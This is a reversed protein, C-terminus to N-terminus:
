NINEKGKIRQEKRLSRKVLGEKRQEERLPQKVLSEKKYAISNDASTKDLTL